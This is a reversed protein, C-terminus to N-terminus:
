CFGKDVVAYRTRPTGAASAIETEMLRLLEKMEAASRFRVIRDSFQIESVIGGARINEKLLDKDAQTWAM